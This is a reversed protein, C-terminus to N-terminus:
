FIKINISYGIHKRMNLVTNNTFILYQGKIGILKYQIINNSYNLNFLKIKKPYKFVPYIFNYITNNKYLYNKYKKYFKLIFNFIKNKINILNINKLFNNTLMNIYNTRDPIIKKCINEIIGSLYRNPTIALIIAKLAGQDMLRNLFNKKITIGVKINGTLSIYIIHDQLEIKKEKKLNIHEINLHSTCKTPHYIGIYFSNFFCNKCYGDKFM